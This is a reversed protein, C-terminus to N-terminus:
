LWDKAVDGILSPVMPIDCIKEIERERESKKRDTKKGNKDKERGKETEIGPLLM